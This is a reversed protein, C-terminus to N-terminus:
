TLLKRPGISPAAPTFEMSAASPVLRTSPPSVINWATQLSGPSKSIQFLVSCSFFLLSVLSSEGQVTVTTNTSKIGLNSHMKCLYAGQDVPMVNLLTLNLSHQPPKDTSECLLEPHLKRYHCAKLNFLWSFTKIELKQSSTAECTLTVNEGCRRVVQPVAQLKVNESVSSHNFSVVCVVCYPSGNRGFNCCIDYKRIM